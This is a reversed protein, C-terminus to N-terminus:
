KAFEKGHIHTAHALEQATFAPSHTIVSYKVNHSDLYDKIKKAIM